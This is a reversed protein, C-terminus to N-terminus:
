MGYKEYFGGMPPNKEGIKKSFYQKVFISNGGM